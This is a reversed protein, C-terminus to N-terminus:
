KERKEKNIKLGIKQQAQGEDEEKEKKSSTLKRELRCVMLCSAQKHLLSLFPPKSELIDVPHSMSLLPFPKPHILKM